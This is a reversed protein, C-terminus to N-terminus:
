GANTLAELHTNYKKLVDPPSGEAAIVGENLWIVRDCVSRVQPGTHSVFVVTQEGAIRERLAKEAKQRFHADGVSLIEDIMLIDVHTMLATTFGLRARMGASYTKVPEEFSDGLDSFEKIDALWSEARRKSAGQLMASLVANDRGSLHPTFGLGLALLAASKGEKRWITGSTPELIGALLRLMTSKGCGNRGILGLTEGEQLEFNIGNLVHHVGYDFTKKGSRYNLVVNEVRLMAGDGREKM